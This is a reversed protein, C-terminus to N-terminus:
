GPSHGSGSPAVRLLTRRAGRWAWGARRKAIQTGANAPILPRPAHVVTVLVFSLLMLLFWAGLKGAGVPRWARRQDPYAWAGAFTGLNEALWIFLAVLAFGVVLPMRRPTRDVTFVIWTPALVMVVLVFLVYRIDTVYHHTFFNVYAALALVWVAWAPPYGIFRFDMLRFSRAIFSGIAAYMFGSFLPVGGIRLVSAEPYVWSGQATKFVEMITGVIHFVAIVVAEERKELGTALLFVQLAVAAAVLADYRALPADAPWWLKTALILALM